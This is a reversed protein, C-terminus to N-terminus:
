HRSLRSLGRRTFTGVTVYCAPAFFRDPLVVLKKNDENGKDYDSRRSLADAQGNKAGAIHVLEFDYEM